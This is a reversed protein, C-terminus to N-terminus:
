WNTKRYRARDNEGVSPFTDWKSRWAMSPMHEPSQIPWELLKIKPDNGKQFMWGQKM